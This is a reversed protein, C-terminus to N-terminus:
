LGCVDKRVRIAVDIVLLEVRNPRMVVVPIQPFHHRNPRRICRVVVIRDVLVAPDVRAAIDAVLVAPDAIIDVLVERDVPDM